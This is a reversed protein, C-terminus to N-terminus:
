VSHGPFSEHVCCSWEPGCKVTTAARIQQLKRVLTGSQDRTKRPLDGPSFEERPNQFAVSLGSRGELKWLCAVEGEFCFRWDTGM